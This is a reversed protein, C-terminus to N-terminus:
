QSHRAWRIMERFSPRKGYMLIGVRYIRAAISLVFGISVGLIAVSALVDVLSAGGLLFRMPMLVPSSIPFLTLVQAVLGRPDNAVLQMCMLPVILLIVIPTQIQQADQESSVMSGIAAYIAAYFFFGLVFYVLILVITGIALSPFAVDEVSGVGLVGLIFARYRFLMLAFFAWISFQLLGVGGVGLLKGLLLARPKISSILLEIVRSSKEQIVSRLVNVAYLIVAMYLLFMTAYAVVFVAQGSTQEGGTTQLVDVPVRQMMQAIEQPQMGAEAARITQVAVNVIERLVTIAVPNTANVGRYVVKGGSVVNSPLVLYGDIEERQIRAQLVEMSTDAEVTEIRMNAQLAAIALGIKSGIDRDSRDIVQVRIDKSASHKALCAPVVVLGAMGLPGLLTVILFWKTRVREWFERKTVVIWSSM